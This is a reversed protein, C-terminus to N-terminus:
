GGIGGHDRGRAGGERGAHPQVLKDDWPHPDARGVVLEASGTIADSAEHVPVVEAGLGTRLGTAIAEAVQRTNGYISEYVVLASM